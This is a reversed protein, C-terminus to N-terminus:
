SCPSTYESSTKIIQNSLHLSGLRKMPGGHDSQIVMTWNPQWPRIIVCYDSPTHAEVQNHAAETDHYINQHVIMLLMNLSKTDLVMDPKVHAYVVIHTQEAM